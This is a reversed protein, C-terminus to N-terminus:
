GSVVTEPNESTPTILGLNGDYRRYLLNGRRTDHDTFFIFPLWGHVLRTAAQSPTLDPITRPNITLPPTVPTSPPRMTRQRALRLGTPGARYVVADEGTEADTYLHVDYDMADLVAAAQCPMGAHLRFRKLRAIHGEAPGALAGREPDPWPWPEWATTLRRIHRDLRAAATAIAVAATRGAVQIRAPAGCVRVNVQVLMPGGACNAGTLRIRANEISMGHHTLVASIMAVACDREDQQLSGKTQVGVAPESAHAAIRVVRSSLRIEKDLRVDM